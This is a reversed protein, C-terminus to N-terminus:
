TLIRYGLLFRELANPHASLYNFARIIMNCLLIAIKPLFHASSENFPQYILNFQM